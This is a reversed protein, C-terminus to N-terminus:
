GGQPTEATEADSKSKHHVTHCPSCLAELNARDYALEPADKREKIHHVHTAPTLVDRTLCHACLPNEALVAARVRRWAESQYWAKDAKRGPSNDYAKNTARQMVARRVQGHYQIRQRM